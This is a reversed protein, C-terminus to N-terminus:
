VARILTLGCSPCLPLEEGRRLKYRTYDGNPCTFRVGPRAGQTGALGVIAGAPGLTGSSRSAQGKVEPPVSGAEIFQGAWSLLEERSSITDQIRTLRDTAPEGSLLTRALAADVQSADKGLLGALFPRIERGITFLLDDDSM